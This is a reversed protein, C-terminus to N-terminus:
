VRGIPPFGRPSHVVLIYFFYAPGQGERGEWRWSGRGKPVCASLFGRTRFCPNRFFRHTRKACTPAAFTLCGVLSRSLTANVLLVAGRQGGPWFFREERSPSVGGRLFPPTEERGRGRCPLSPVGIQHRTGPTQPRPGPAQLRTGPPRHESMTAIHMDSERQFHRKHSTRQATAFLTAKTEKGKAFSFRDKGTPFSFTGRGRLSPLLFARPMQSRHIAMCKAHSRLWTCPAHTPTHTHTHGHTTHFTSHPTSFIIMINANVPAPLFAYVSAGGHGGRRHM